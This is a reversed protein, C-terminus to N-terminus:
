KTKTEKSWQDFDARWTPPRPQMSRSAVVWWRDRERLLLGTLHGRGPPLEKGDPGKVGIVEYAGDVLAVNETVFWVSDISLTARSERFVTEHEAAFLEEIQDRGRVMRLDPEVHDGDLAYFSAMTKADHRNWAETFDAFQKRIVAEQEVDYKLFGARNPPEQAHTSEGLGVCVMVVTLGLTRLPKNM